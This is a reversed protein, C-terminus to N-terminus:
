KLYDMLSSDQESAPTRGLPPNTTQLLLAFSQMRSSIPWPTRGFSLGGIEDPSELHKSNLIEGLSIICGTLADRYMDPSDGSEYRPPGM